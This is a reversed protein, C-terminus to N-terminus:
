EKERGIFCQYWLAGHFLLLILLTYGVLFPNGGGIFLCYLPLSFVTFIGVLGFSYLVFTGPLACSSTRLQQLCFGYFVPLLTIAGVGMFGSVLKGWLSGGQAYLLLFCIGYLLCGWAMGWLYKGALQQKM